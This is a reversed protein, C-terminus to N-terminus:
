GDLRELEATLEAEARAALEPPLKIFHGDADPPLCRLGHATSTRNILVTPQKADGAMTRLYEGTETNHLNLMLHSDTGIFQGVEDVLFVIRHLPGKSDLYEKM